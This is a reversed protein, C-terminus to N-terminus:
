AKKLPLIPKPVPTTPAIEPAAFESKLVDANMTEIWDALAMLHPSGNARLEAVVRGGLTPSTAM